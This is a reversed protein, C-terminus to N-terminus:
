PDPMGFTALMVPLLMLGHFAGMVIIGLYIGAPARATRARTHTHTLEHQAGTYARGGRFARFYYLRFLQSPAVALITVGVLKTLTIGTVVSSGM